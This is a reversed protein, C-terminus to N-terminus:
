EISDASPKSNKLKAKLAVNEEKLVEIDHKLAAVYKELYEVKAELNKKQQQVDQVKIDVVAGHKTVAMGEEITKQDYKNVRDEVTPMKDFEKRSSCSSLGLLALMMFVNKTGAM